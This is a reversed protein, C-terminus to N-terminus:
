IAVRRPNFVLRIEFDREIREGGVPIPNSGGARFCFSVPTMSNRQRALESHAGSRRRQKSWRHGDAGLRASEVTEFGRGDMELM